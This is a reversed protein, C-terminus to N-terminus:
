VKLPMVIHLFGEDSESVMKLPVLSEGYFITIMDGSLVQLADLFFAANVSFEGGDGEQKIDLRTDGSGIETEATIIEMVKNDFVIKITNNDTEKAFIGARKVALICESRSFTVNGKFSLPIIRQYEPFNGEILRSSLEINGSIFVIQTKSIKIDVTPNKSIIRSVEQLARAPVICKHSSDISSLEITQEGLRYSDTGVIKLLNQDIWFLAGSLVPRASSASCSFVVHDVAKKIDESPLSFQIEPDIGPLEPFEEASIGKMKTKAQSTSVFINEGEVSVTVTTEPLFSVYNSFIRAPITITGESEILAPFSTTIAMELNTASFQVSEASVSICINGLVALTNQANIAKQVVSIAEQLISKECSFKM